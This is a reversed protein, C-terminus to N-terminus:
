ITATAGLGEVQVACSEGFPPDPIRPLALTSLPSAAGIAIGRSVMCRSEARLSVM